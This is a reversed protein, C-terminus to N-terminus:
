IHSMGGTRVWSTAAPSVPGGQALDPPHSSTRPADKARVGTAARTTQPNTHPPPITQPKGHSTRQEPIVELSQQEEGETGLESSSCVLLALLVLLWSERCLPELLFPILDEMPRKNPFFSFPRKIWSLLSPAM